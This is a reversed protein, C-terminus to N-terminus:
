RTLREIRDEDRRRRMADGQTVRKPTAKADDLTARAAGPGAEYAIIAHVVV